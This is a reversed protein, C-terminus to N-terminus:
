DSRSQPSPRVVGALVLGLLVVGGAKLGWGLQRYRGFDALGLAAAALVALAGLSVRVEASEDLLRARQLMWANGLGIAGLLFLANDIRNRLPDDFTTVLGMGVLASYGLIGSGIIALARGRPIPRATRPSLFAGHRVVRVRM